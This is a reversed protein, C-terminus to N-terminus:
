AKRKPKIGAISNEFTFKAVEWMSIKADKEPQKKIVTNKKKKFPNFFDKVKNTVDQTSTVMETIGETLLLIAGLTAYLGKFDAAVVEDSSMYKPKHKEILVKRECVNRELLADELLRKGSMHMDAMMTVEDFTKDNQM